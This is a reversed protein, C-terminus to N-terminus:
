CTHLALILARQMEVSAVNMFAGIHEPLWLTDTRDAKHLRAIGSARNQGIRTRNVAWSLPASLIPSM